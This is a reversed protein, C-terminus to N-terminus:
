SRAAAAGWMTAPLAKGCETCVAAEGMPYACKPCLGRRVRLSQRLRFPGGWLLWLAVAYFLTNLIFGPWIPRLPLVRWRTGDSPLQIGDHTLTAIWGLSPSRRWEGSCVMTRAPFGRADRIAGQSERIPAWYPLMDDEDKVRVLRPRSKPRGHTIASSVLTSGLARYETVFWQGDRVYLFRRTGEGELVDVWAALGWAVAVNVMAGALLLILITVILRKV